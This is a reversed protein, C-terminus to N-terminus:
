FVIVPVCFSEVCVCLQLQHKSSFSNESSQPKLGSTPIFRVFMSDLQQYFDVLNTWSHTLDLRTNDSLKHLANYSIHTHVNVWLPARRGGETLHSGGVGCLHQCSRVKSYPYYDAAM